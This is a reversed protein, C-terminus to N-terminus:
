RGPKGRPAPLLYVLRRLVKHLLNNVAKPSNSAIGNRNGRQLLEVIVHASTHSKGAGPPGQIFLYSDNLEPVIALASWVARAIRGSHHEM